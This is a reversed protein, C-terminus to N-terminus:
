MVYMLATVSIIIVTNSFETEDQFISLLIFRVLVGPWSYHARDVKMIM